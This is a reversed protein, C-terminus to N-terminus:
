RLLTVTGRKLGESDKSINAQGKYTIVYVYVGQPADSGDKTGDWGKYIDNTIYVLEGTRSYIRMTFDKLKTSSKALFYDNVNNGDPTFASPVWVNTCIDVVTTDSVVCGDNRVTVFYIGPQEVQYFQSYSGDQWQFDCYDNYGANLILDTGMCLYTTDSLITVPTAFVRVTVEKKGICGFTSIGSLTYTMTQKPSANVNPGFTGSLGTSPGWIYTAAGNGTLRITSDKCIAPNAPTVWVPPIPHVVVEVTDSNKCGHLDTVSLYFSATASPAVFTIPMTSGNSWLYTFGGSGSLMASDGDCISLDPGANAPPLPNVFVTMSDPASCGNLTATVIYVTTALPYANPNAINLASLGTAPGWLYSDGGTAGLQVTDYICITKDTGANVNPLPKIKLIMSDTTDGCFLTTNVSHLSLTVSGATIDWTSPTYVPNQTTLNDFSGTGSTSWTLSNANTSTAGALYYTWGACISDDNGAFATTKESITLVLSHVSDGCPTQGYATLSLIVTGNTFDLASHNYTANLIHKDIFTGTGSSTWLLSDYHDGTALLAQFPNGACITDSVGSFVEAKPTVSVSVTGSTSTCGDTVTVKYITAVNPTVGPGAITSTFGAPVSAWSYNYALNGGSPTALLSTSSGFCVISPTATVAVSLATGNVTILVTDNLSWCGTANDQVRLIYQQSATLPVTTPAAIVANALMASPTWAWVYTSTGGTVSGSLTATCGYNITDNPGANAIPLANVTIKVVNSPATCNISNLSSNAIRVYWVSTTLVPPDYTANTAGAINAFPGTVSAGSQWQYTLLGLGTSLTTVTFAAPDQGACITQAAAIVGGTVSNVTICISNSIANCLSLNLHSTVVRRYCTSSTLAAADFVASTEGPIDAWPGASNPASQWQYTLTGSGTAATTVTFAVPNDGSCITQDAAVVGATVDNITVCTVNSIASCTIANLLSSAVRRYCTSVTLAPADYASATAGAINTFTGTATPGSQWQYSLAGSGTAATTVTFAVPDAGNCITQDAAIVGATIANITIKVSNSTASCLSGNLTSTVILQYFTTVTLAPPDYTTGTQGTIDTWPGAATPGSQWKYSLTGSGTPPTPVTTVVPNDGSCITQDGAIVGANVNNITIHIINSTASCGIGNLTSTVIRQFWTDATLTNPDFTALIAGTINAYPGGVATASQWQYSLVGSGTPATTITLPAPDGGNCITQDAAIVGATVNNIFIKVINSTATCAKLNLTSIVIRRYWTEVTLALPAYTALTGNVGINTWVGGSNISSQWQYTLTGSGTEVVTVTFAGPVTNSCITQDAAIIGATVNNITIHLINSTASCPVFNLMSTVVVKYWTDSTLAPPAYTPNIATPIATYTGAAGTTSAFWQYSLLGSGTAVTTVTFAAPITGSCITQDAAIVSATVNNITIAVVNSIATCAVSNLTSTVIVRYWTNVTLTPPAFTANQAGNINGYPGALVTASQWQYSLVGTGTAATTVTFPAPATGSCITQNVAIVSATVNNITIHLENSIATCQVTNLTSIVVVRYWTDVTLAPPAYTALGAGTINTWPGGASLSNQWQYSLVGSGTGATTVTFPLPITNSCITQDAAIVSATVNNITIAVVNSTATCAITNLTSTVIVRYWTNVTLAPPAYTNLSAGSITTFPGAAAIANQWEYTLVGTGTAATTVTFPLPIANSCITQNAAIVSATVNNITIALINSISSCPVTNLTSIAVRRYWTNVTLAPPAFTPLTAGAINVFPGALATANQWQYTLTGSGTAATTVTFQAPVTNSCITQDSAVVGATVDNISISLINSTASCAVTNLTSTVIVQYWTNVTLAPPTFTASMAGTINTFPGAANLADQWQYSLVGTGIAATTVTFAAPTNGSCITQNAAIVSATVNNITIALANSTATCAVSNLTSTVIVKYWTNVTLAAPDYTDTTAGAITTWPGAAATANQWEYSLVGTGTAATTVTFAQPDGGSCITQDAAIVSATVNNITIALINSIASCAVGNLTSIAVRRYWTDVTLVGPDYASAQALPINTYPGALSTASQWQYSIVGSGTAITSITFIAPDGGNCITQDAAIAGATVDNITIALVNSTATCAVSNLTSTVVVQYWTSLTLAPPAYTDSTASAITTFPGTAAAAQQWEYTLVGTGSAATTVTFPLPITNSCITQNAAIVSATVNNLTIALINSISSCPVTNM